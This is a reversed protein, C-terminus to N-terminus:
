PQPRGRGSLSRPNTLVLNELGLPSQMADELAGATSDALLQADSLAAEATVIEFQSGLLDLRSLDGRDYQSRIRLEQQLASALVSQATVLKQRAAALTAVAQNVEPLATAQVVFFHAAAQERRTQAEPIARLNHNRVPLVLAAIAVVGVVVYDFKFRRV